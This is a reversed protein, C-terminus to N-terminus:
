QKNENDLLLSQVNIYQAMGKETVFPYLSILAVFAYYDITSSVDINGKSISHNIWWGLVVTQSEFCLDRMQKNEIKKIYEGSSLLDLIKDYRAHGLRWLDRFFIKERDIVGCDGLMYAAVGRYSYLTTIIYRYFLYLQKIDIFPTIYGDISSSIDKQCQMWIASSIDDKRPFHYTINGPSISLSQALYEIRFDVMGISNIIENAKNIILGRTSNGDKTTPNNKNKNM